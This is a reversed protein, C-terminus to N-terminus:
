TPEGSIQRRAARTLGKFVLTYSGDILARITEDPVSGDLTIAIWHRKDLYSPLTIAPYAARLQEAQDPDCKLSLRLPADDLGILAFMKGGVKLVLTEPGFPLDEFAGQKGLLYARLTALDHM